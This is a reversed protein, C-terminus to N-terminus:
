WYHYKYDLERGDNDLWKVKVEQSYALSSFSLIIFLILNKM